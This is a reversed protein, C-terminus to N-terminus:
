NRDDLGWFNVKHYLSPKFYSNDGCLSYYIVKGEKLEQVKKEALRVNEAHKAEAIRVIERLQPIKAREFINFSGLCRILDKQHQLLAEYECNNGEELTSLNRQKYKPIYSKYTCPSSNLRLPQKTALIFAKSRNAVVAIMLMVMTMM